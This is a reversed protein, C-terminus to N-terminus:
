QGAGEDTPETSVFYPDLTRIPERARVRWDVKEEVPPVPNRWAIVHECGLAIFVDDPVPQQVAKKRKNYSKRKYKTRHVM